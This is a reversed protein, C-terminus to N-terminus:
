RPKRPKSRRKKTQHPLQLPESDPEYIDAECELKFQNVKADLKDISELISSGSATKSLNCYCIQFSIQSYRKLLIGKSGIEGIALSSASIASFVSNITKM